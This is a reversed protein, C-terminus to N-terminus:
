SEFRTENVAQSLSASSNFAAPINRKFSDCTLFTPYLNCTEVALLSKALLLAWRSQSLLTVLLEGRGLVWHVGKMGTRAGLIICFM